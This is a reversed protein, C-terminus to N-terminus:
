RRRTGARPRESRLAGGAGADARFSVTATSSAGRFAAAPAGASAPFRYRLTLRYQGINTLSYLAVHPLSGADLVGDLAPGAFTAGSLESEHITSGPAVRRLGRQLRSRLGEDFDITSLEPHVTVAGPM